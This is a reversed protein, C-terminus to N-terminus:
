GGDGRVLEGPRVALVLEAPRIVLFHGPPPWAVDVGVLEVLGDADLQRVTARVWTDAPTHLYVPQGKYFDNM